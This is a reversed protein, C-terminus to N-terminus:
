IVTSDIFGVFCLLLRFEVKYLCCHWHFQGPCYYILASCSNVHHRALRLNQLHVIATGLGLLSVEYIVPRSTGPPLYALLSGSCSALWQISLLQLRPQSSALTYENRGYNTLDQSKSSWATCLWIMQRINKASRWLWERCYIACDNCHSRLHRSFSATQKHLCFFKEAFM